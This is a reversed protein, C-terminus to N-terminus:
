PPPPRLGWYRWPLGWHRSHVLFTNSSAELTVYTLTMYSSLIFNYYLMHCKSIRRVSILTNNALQELTMQVAIIVGPLWLSPM